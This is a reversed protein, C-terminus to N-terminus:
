RLTSHSSAHMHSKDKWFMTIHNWIAFTEGDPAIFLQGRIQGGQIGQADFEVVENKQLDKWVYRWKNPGHSTKGRQVLKASIEFRGDMSRCGDIYVPQEYGAYVLSATVVSSFILIIPLQKM